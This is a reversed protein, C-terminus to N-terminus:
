GDLLRGDGAGLSRPDDRHPRPCRRRGAACAADCRLRHDGRRGRRDRRGGGADTRKILGVIPVSVAARVAAIREAGEIRVGAAGNAVACQAFLAVTAPTNLVSAAEPQISVILGGRLQELIV